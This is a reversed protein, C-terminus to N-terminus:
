DRPSPSPKRPWLHVASQTCHFNGGQCRALSGRGGSMKCGTGCKSLRESFVIPPASFQETDNQKPPTNKEKKLNPVVTPVFNTKWPLSSHGLFLQARSPLRSASLQLSWPLAGPSQQSQVSRRCMTFLQQVSKRGRRIDQKSLPGGM